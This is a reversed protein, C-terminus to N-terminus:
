LNTGVRIRNGSPDTATFERMGWSRDEVATVPLGADVCRRYWADVDPVNFYVSGHGAQESVELHALEEGDLGVIAYGTNFLDVSAGLQRYFAATTAMDDVSLIATSFIHAGRTPM